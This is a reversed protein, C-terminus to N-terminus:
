DPEVRINGEQDHYRYHINSSGGGVLIVKREEVKAINEDESSFEMGKIDPLDFVQGQNGIIKEPNISFVTLKCVKKEGEYKGTIECSGNERAIIKGDKIEAVDPNSSSLSVDKILCETGKLMAKEKPLDTVLLTGEFVINGLKYQYNEKGCKVATIKNRKVTILDGATFKGDKDPLEFSEEPAMWYLKKMTVVNIEM